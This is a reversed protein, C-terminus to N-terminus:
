NKLCRVSFGMGKMAELRFISNIYFNLSLAWGQEKNAETSSWIMGDTGIESYIFAGEDTCSGGPLTSFGNSKLKAVASQEGGLFDVFEFLEITTPIHWGNPALNRSDTVAYWNYLKGYKIGNVPDYDYYCWAPKKTNTATKWEEPTRAERILDGNRFTDMSLNKSMWLQNGIKIENPSFSNPITQSICLNSLLIVTSLTFLQKM